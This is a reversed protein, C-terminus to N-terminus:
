AAMALRIPGDYGLDGRVLRVLHTMGAAPIGLDVYEGTTYDLVQLLCRDCPKGADLEHQDLIRVAEADPWKSRVLAIMRQAREPLDLDSKTDAHM